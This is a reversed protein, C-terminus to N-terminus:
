VEFVAADEVERTFVGVVHTHPPQGCCLLKSERGFVDVVHVEDGAHELEGLDALTDLLLHGGLFQCKDDDVGARGVELGVSAAPRRIVLARSPQSSVLAPSFSISRILDARLVAGPQLVSYGNCLREPVHALFGLFGRLIPVLAVRRLQLV